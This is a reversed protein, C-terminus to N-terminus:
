VENIRIENEAMNESEIRRPRQLQLPSRQAQSNRLPARLGTQLIRKAWDRKMRQSFRESESRRAPILCTRTPSSKALMMSGLWSDVFWNMSAFSKRGELKSPAM